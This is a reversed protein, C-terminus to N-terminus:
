WFFSRELLSSLWDVPGNTGGEKGWYVDAKLKPAARTEDVEFLDADADLYAPMESACTQDARRPYFRNKARRLSDNRTLQSRKRVIRAQIPAEPWCHASDKRASDVQEVSRVAAVLVTPDLDPVVCVIARRKALQFTVSVVGRVQLLRERVLEVGIDSSVGYLRLIVNRPRFAPPCQPDSSASNHDGSLNRLLSDATYAITKWEDTMSSSVSKVVCNLQEKLGVLSRLVSKAGSREFLSSFIELVTSVVSLDENSLLLVLGQLSIEDQTRFHVVTNRSVKLLVQCNVDDEALEKFSLLVNVDTM